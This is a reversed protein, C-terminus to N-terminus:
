KRDSIDMSCTVFVVFNEYFLDHEFAQLGLTGLCFLKEHNTCSCIMLFFFSFLNVCSVIQHLTIENYFVSM